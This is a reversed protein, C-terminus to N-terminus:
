YIFLGAVDEGGMENKPSEIEYARCFLHLPSRRNMVGYFTLEDLLDVHYPLTQQTLYRRGLLSVTPRVGCVVSRHYLFPVDFSRGNFTVFTDYSSVGEWFDKLMEVETREKYTFNEEVFLERSSDGAFYVAGQAREVDYMGITIISGTLPSFGLQKKVNELEKEYETKSSATREVWRTLVKKTTDDFGEWPEGLTEIDFVLTAM